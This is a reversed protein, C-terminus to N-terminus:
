KYVYPDEARAKKLKKKLERRYLFNEILRKIWNM